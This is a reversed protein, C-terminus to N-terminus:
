THSSPTTPLVILQWEPHCPNLGGSYSNKIEHRQKIQTKVLDQKTSEIKIFIYYINLKTHLSTRNCIKNKTSNINIASLHLVM